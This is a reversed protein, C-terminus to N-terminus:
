SLSGFNRNPWSPRAPEPEPRRFIKTRATTRALLRAMAQASEARAACVVVIELIILYTKEKEFISM